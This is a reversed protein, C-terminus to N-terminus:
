ICKLKNGINKYYYNNYPINKDLAKALTKDSISLTKICDYKCIFEKILNQQLDYQGVGNRYLVPKGGNKEEFINKLSENCTDYLKYYFGKSITSNKVPVDLASISEYGNFHAATKRDIYVNIIESQDTNIQAIYGLNQIKTQKTPLIQHIHTPDLERDVLLWRYGCYITNETIAKNLSPRKINQNEKMVESISEYFKILELTEPNIKQLRPGLTILPTTFGTTIKPQSTNLKELIQKNTNELNDIKSSLHKTINLLEQILQNDNNTNKMELMLKLQENELELKGNDNNNFYKLNNNIINLLTIYSLEKGILFLELETEHGKWDRVRNGRVLEHDKIFTEFDKSKNVVFCDLLLCEEYKSKHEKYRQAIGRRSEGIKIIYNKNEFTKVKIVYFISGITGYESLLIKERELVKQKQLAKEYEQKQVQEIEIKQNELQLKLENSEEMIIEQLFHELKIFYDHIEDAKKTGAKLCLKKFTKVNLMIKEKNHGGRTNEKKAGSPEPAINTQEVVHNLLVIYDKDLKFHNELIRKANVKQNFGLWQWLNDLDIVFDNNFDNNLYCYFSSVFMQQEYNNFNTKVKEILKSQYDGNLKTIPNTEILNVIDISM